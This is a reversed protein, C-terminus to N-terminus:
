RVMHSTKIDHDISPRVSTRAEQERDPHDWLMVAIAWSSLLRQNAHEDPKGMDYIRFFAPILTALQQLTDYRIHLHPGREIRM